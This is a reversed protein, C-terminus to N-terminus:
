GDRLAIIGGLTGLYETGTRSISIGSYNNNFGIGNGALQQFVVQGTRYDLATWYWPGSSASTTTYTYILGNALALGISQKGTFRPPDYEPQKECM